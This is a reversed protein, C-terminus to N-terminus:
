EGFVKLNVIVICLLLVAKTNLNLRGFASFEILCM